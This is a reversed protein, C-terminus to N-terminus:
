DSGLKPPGPESGIDSFVDFATGNALLVFGVCMGGDRREGWNFGGGRL